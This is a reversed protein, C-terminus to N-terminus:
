CSFCCSYQQCKERTEPSWLGTDEEAPVVPFFMNIANRM